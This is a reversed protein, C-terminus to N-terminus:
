ISCFVHCCQSPISVCIELGCGVVAPYSLDPLVVKINEENWSLRQFMSTILSIPTEVSESWACELGDKKGAAERLMKM